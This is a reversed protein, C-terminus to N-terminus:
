RADAIALAAGHVDQAVIVDRSRSYVLDEPDLWIQQSPIDDLAVRIRSAHGLGDVAVAVVHGFTKGSVFQVAVGRFNAAPDAIAAVPTGRHSTTAQAMRASPEETSLGATVGGAVIAAVCAIAFKSVM